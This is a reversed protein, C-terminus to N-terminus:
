LASCCCCQTLETTCAFNNSPFSTIFLLYNYSIINQPQSSICPIFKSFITTPIFLLPLFLNLTLKPVVIKCPIEIKGHSFLSIERPFIFIDQFIPTGLSTRLPFQLPFQQPCLFHLTLIKAIDRLTLYLSLVALLGPRQQGRDPLALTYPAGITAHENM